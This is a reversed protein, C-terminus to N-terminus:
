IVSLDLRDTLFFCSTYEIESVIILVSRAFALSDM